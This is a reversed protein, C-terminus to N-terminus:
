AFPCSVVWRMLIIAGEGGVHRRPSQFRGVGSLDQRHLVGRAGDLFGVGGKTLRVLVGRYFHVFYM